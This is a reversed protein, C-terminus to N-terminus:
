KVNYGKVSEAMRVIETDEVALPDYEILLITDEEPSWWLYSYREQTYLVADFDNVKCSFSSKASDPNCIEYIAQPKEGSKKNEVRYTYFTIQNGEADAWTLPVLTEKQTTNMDWGQEELAAEVRGAVENFDKLAQLHESVPEAERASGRWVGFGTVCLIVAAAAAIIITRKRRM